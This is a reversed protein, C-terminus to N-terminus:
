ASKAKGKEKQQFPLFKKTNLQNMVMMIIVLRRQMLQKEGKRM